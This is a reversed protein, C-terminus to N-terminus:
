VEYDRYDGNLFDDTLQEEAVKEVIEGAKIRVDDASSQMTSYQNIAAKVLEHVLEPENEVFECIFDDDCLLNGVRGDKKQEIYSELADAYRERPDITKWRDYSKWPNSM